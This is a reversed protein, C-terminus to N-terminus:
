NLADEFAKGAKFRVVKKEKIEIEEKTQPNRGKRAPRTKVSFTGFGVLALAEREKDEVSKKAETALTEVVVDLTADLAKKADAQTLEAREAIAKVLETKNM